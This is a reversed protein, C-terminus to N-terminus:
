GLSFLSLCQNARIIRFLFGCKSMVVSMGAEICVSTLYEYWALVEKFYAATLAENKGGEL